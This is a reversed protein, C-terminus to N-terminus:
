ESCFVIFDSPKLLPEPTPFSPPPFPSFAFTFNLFTGIPQFNNLIVLDAIFATFVLSVVYVAVVNFSIICSSSFAFLCPFRLCVYLMINERTYICPLAGTPSEDRARPSRSRNRVSASVASTLDADASVIETTSTTSARADAILRRARERLKRQRDSEGAM